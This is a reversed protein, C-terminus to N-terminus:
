AADLGWWSPYAGDGYGSSFAILNADGHDRPRVNAWRTEWSDREFAGIVRDRFLAETEDANLAAVAAADVFCSTGSDVGYGYFHGFRLAAPDEDPRLAMTWRAVPVDAFRVLACAVRAFHPEEGVPRALAMWVPYRGPPVTRTFAAVDMPWHLYCPDCAILQGSPLILDGACVQQVLLPGDDPAAFTAGATFAREFDTRGEPRKSREDPQM